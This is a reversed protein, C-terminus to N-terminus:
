SVVRAHDAVASGPRGSGTLSTRVRHWAAVAPLGVRAVGSAVPHSLRQMSRLLGLADRVRSPAYGAMTQQFRLTALPITTTGDRAAVLEDALHGADRIATAASGGGTPPMAHVADGLATVPGAPWPTLDGDPDCTHYGFYAATDVDTAAVLDLLAPSWGRLVHRAHAVLAGAALATGGPRLVAEPGILGWVLAPAETIAAVERCTAPDVTAGAAPDHATLFLGLGGPGQALGPGDALMAPLRRRVEATLPIRAAICGYDCPTSTPRGALTAAVRSRVGDAGVLVDSVETTGDDFHTVVRGDSRVEHDRYTSAFRVRDGLGEALLTRLPVRGIFLAEDAPDFTQEALPRLRHDALTLTRSASPPASSGLLAQYHAPGLHRRLMECAPRDLALRYGGTAGVHADRDHVVVDIDARHLAQALALGGIGAGIVTVRM